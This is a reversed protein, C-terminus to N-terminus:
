SRYCTCFECDSYTLQPTTITIQVYWRWIVVRHTAELSLTVLLLASCFPITGSKTAWAWRSIVPLALVGPLLARVWYGETSDRKLGAYDAGIDVLSWSVGAVGWIAGMGLAGSRVGTAAALLRARGGLPSRWASSIGYPIGGFLAGHVGGFTGGLLASAGVSRMLHPPGTKTDRVAVLM